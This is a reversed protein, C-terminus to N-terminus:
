GTEDQAKLRVYYIVGEALGTKTYTEVGADITDVPTTPDTSTGGYVIISDLDTDVPDTWTFVVEGSGGVAALSTPAAPATVDVRNEALLLLFRTASQSYVFGTLLLFLIIINKMKLKGKIEMLGDIETM